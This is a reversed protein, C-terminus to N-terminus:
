AAEQKSKPPRPIDVPWELDSPWRDSFWQLVREAKRFTCSVDEKRLNILWKGDDAAYTSITSIMLGTHGAYADALQIITQKNM